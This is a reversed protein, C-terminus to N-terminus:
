SRVEDAIGRRVSELLSIGGFFCFLGPIIAYTFWQQRRSAPSNAHHYMSFAIRDDQTSKFRIKM